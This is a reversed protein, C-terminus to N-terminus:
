RRPRTFLLWAALVLLAWPWYEQAVRVGHRYGTGALQAGALLALVGAPFLPWLVRRKFVTASLVTILLWGGAFSLLFVGSDAARSLDAIFAITVPNGWHHNRSLRMAQWTPGTEPLQVGGALCGRSPQGVSYPDHPSPTSKAGFLARATQAQSPTAALALCVALVARIM